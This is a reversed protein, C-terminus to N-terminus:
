RKWKTGEQTGKDPKETWIRMGYKKGYNRLTSERDYHDCYGYEESYALADGRCYACESITKYEPDEDDAEFWNEMWGTGKGNLVEALTLVRATM